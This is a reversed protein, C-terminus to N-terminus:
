FSMGVTAIRTNFNPGLGMWPQWSKKQICIRFKLMNFVIYVDTLAHEKYSNNVSPKQKHQDFQVHKNVVHNFRFQGISSYNSNYNNTM